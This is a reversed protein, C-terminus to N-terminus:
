LLTFGALEIVKIVTDNIKDAVTILYAQESLDLGILSTIETIQILNVGSMGIMCGVNNFLEVRCFILLFDM